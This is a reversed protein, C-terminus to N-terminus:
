KLMKDRRRANTSLVTSRRDRESISKALIMSDKSRWPTENTETVWCKLVVWEIPRKVSFIRSEKAWNSRSIMPSRMRSLIAAWRRLPLHDPPV